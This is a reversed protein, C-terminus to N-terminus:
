QSSLYQIVLVVIVKGIYLAYFKRPNLIKNSIKIDYATVLGGIKCLPTKSTSGIWGWLIKVILTSNIEKSHWLLIVPKFIELQSTSLESSIKVKLRDVICFYRVNIHKMRKSSLERRNRELQIAGVDEQKITANYGLPKLPSNM